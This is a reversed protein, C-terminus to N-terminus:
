FRVSRGSRNTVAVKMRLQVSPFGRDDLGESDECYQGVIAMGVGGSESPGSSRAPAAFCGAAAFSFVLYTVSKMAHVSRTGGNAGRVRPVHHAGPFAFSGDFVHARGRRRPRAPPQGRHGERARAGG